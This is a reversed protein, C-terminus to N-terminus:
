ENLNSINKNESKYIGNKLVGSDSAKIDSNKEDFIINNGIDVSNVVYYALFFTVIIVLFLIGIKKAKM